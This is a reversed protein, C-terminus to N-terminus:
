PPLFRQEKLTKAPHFFRLGTNLASSYQTRLCGKSEEDNREYEQYRHSHQLEQYQLYGRLFSTACEHVNERKVILKMSSTNKRLREQTSLSASRHSSYVRTHPCDKSWNKLVQIWALVHKCVCVIVQLYLGALPKAGKHWIKGQWDSTYKSAAFKFNGVAPEDSSLKRPQWALFCWALVLHVSNNM